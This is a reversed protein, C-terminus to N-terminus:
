DDSDNEGSEEEYPQEIVEELDEDPYQQQEEFM